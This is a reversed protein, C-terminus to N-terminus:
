AEPPLCVRGLAAAESAGTVSPLGAAENRLRARALWAFAAAEVWDPPLVDAPMPGTDVDPLHRALRGMLDKNSAGGGCVLVDATPAYERAANAISVATLEALTAQIDAASHGEAQAIRHELWDRNFYERGTSKPPARDFYADALMASLLKTDPKGTAAWQGDEDYTSGIHETAWIDLLTNGPGTDFGSVTGDAALVTINAIGGINVILKTQGTRAFVWDHFAPVLPAGQGGLAIDASRFDVVTVIGTEKAIIAGDGLQLSFPPDADPKHLVTQGHNGIAAIQKKVLGANQLLTKVAEAYLFGLKKDLLELQDPNASDAVQIVDLLEARVDTPFKHARTAHLQVARDTHPPGFSAVVTDIADLSTGSMLGIYLDDPM